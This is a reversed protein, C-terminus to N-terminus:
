GGRGGCRGVSFRSTYCQRIDYVLGLLQLRNKQRRLIFTERDRRLHTSKGETM